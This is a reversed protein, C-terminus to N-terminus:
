LVARITTGGGTPSVLEFDGGLATVRDRLATLGSGARAGGCGDDAVEVTLRDGRSGLTVRARRAQAHKLTNALGEAVVFYATTAVTDTVRINEVRVDTPITSDRVLHQIAAELGDDLRSPRVGHALRRLEHVVDELATVAADLDRQVADHLAHQRQVSRLRMGVALIQQQAGDHLDRELRRRENNAAEVLRARSANADELARRLEMRLRSVEIALRAEVALERARRLRRASSRGLVIVAIESGWATLPIVAGAPTGERTADALDVYSTSGPVKLLVELAPDDLSKRLVEQVAEPQEEGDRVRRVFQQMSALMVAREPDLLRAVAAQLWRHLPVLLLATLFAAAVVAPPSGPTLGAAQGLEVGGLVILAFVGAAVAATLVWAVSGSILRDIDFLDHRLIAFAVTAPLGLLAAVLFPAYAIPIPTGLAEAIWGGTLLSPVAVTGLVVWRLQLRTLEDGRRYRVVLSTVASALVAALLLFTFYVIPDWVADPLIVPPRGPLTGGHDAYAQPHLALAGIVMVAVGLFLWPLTAWRRGPLSGNPFVLCLLVFGALNFVWVGPALTAAVRALPWPNATGFTEGVTEIARTLCPAAALALLGPGAPSRPRRWAVLLGLVMSPMLALSTALAESPALVPTPGWAAAVAVATGLGYGLLPVV